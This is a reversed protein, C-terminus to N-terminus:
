NTILLQTICGILMYDAYTALHDDINLIKCHQIISMLKKDKCLCYSFFFGLKYTRWIVCGNFAYSMAVNFALLVMIYEHIRSNCSVSNNEESFCLPSYM